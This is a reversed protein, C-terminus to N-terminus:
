QFETVVQSGHMHTSAARGPLRSCNRSFMRVSRRGAKLLFIEMHPVSRRVGAKAAARPRCYSLQCIPHPGGPRMKKPIKHLNCLFLAKAKYFRSTSKKSFEPMISWQRGACILKDVIFICLTKIVRQVSNSQKIGLKM